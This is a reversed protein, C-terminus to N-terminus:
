ENASEIILKYTKYSLRVVMLVFVAGFFYVFAQMIILFADLETFIAIINAVYGVLFFLILIKIIKWNKVVKAEPILKLIKNTYLVCYMLIILGVGAGIINIYEYTGLSM